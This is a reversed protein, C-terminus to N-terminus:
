FHYDADGGGNLDIRAANGPFNRYDEYNGEANEVRLDFSEWGSKIGIELEYGRPLYGGVIANDEWHKSGGESVYVAYIDSDTKNVITLAGAESASVLMLLIASTMSIFKKMSM